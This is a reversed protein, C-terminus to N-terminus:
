KALLLRNKCDIVALTEVKSDPTIRSVRAVRSGGDLVYLNGNPSIAVGSPQEFELDKQDGPLKASVTSVIGDPTVKRVRSNNPDAVYVNGAKDIALGSPLYFRAAGSKGDAFGAKASGALTTSAAPMM